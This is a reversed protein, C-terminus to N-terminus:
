GKQACHCFFVPPKGSMVQYSLEAASIDMNCQLRYFAVTLRDILDLTKMLGAPDHPRYTQQLLMPLADKKDIERIHNTEGRELICIAKLPVTMNNSLHHKGDWPTGCVLAGQETIRILPKDDNVMVAAPGLLERWLRTHTSKGTGSKATFLYCEGDVAVASGHFLFTDYAPIKEAIKRYVALKELYQDSYGPDSSGEGATEKASRDREFEIDAQNTSVAFDTKCKKCNVRYDNCMDQVARNVSTIEINRGAFRYVGTM